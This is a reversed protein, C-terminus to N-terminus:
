HAVVSVCVRMYVTSIYLWVGTFEGVEVKM